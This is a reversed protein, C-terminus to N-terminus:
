ARSMVRPQGEAVRSELKVFESKKSKVPLYTEATNIATGTNNWKVYYGGPKNRTNCIVPDSRRQKQKKKLSLKSAGLSFLFLQFSNLILM